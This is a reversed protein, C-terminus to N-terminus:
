HFPVNATSQLKQRRNTSSLSSQAATTATEKGKPAAVLRRRHRSNGLNTEKNRQTQAMIM